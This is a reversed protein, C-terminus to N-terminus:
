PNMIEIHDIKRGCPFFTVPHKDHYEEYARLCFDESDFGVLIFRPESDSQHIGAVQYSKSNFLTLRFCPNQKPDPVDEPHSEQNSISVLIAARCGMNSFAKQALHTLAPDPEPDNSPAVLASSM